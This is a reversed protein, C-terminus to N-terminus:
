YGLRANQGRPPLGRPLCTSKAHSCALGHSCRYERTLTLKLRDESIPKGLPPLNKALWTSPYTSTLATYEKSKISYMNPVAESVPVCQTWWDTYRDVARATYVAWRKERIRILAKGRITEDQFKLGQSDHIGFLGDITSITERLDALAALLKLHLICRDREVTSKTAPGPDSFNLPPIDIVFQENEVQQEQYTPPADGNPPSVDKIDKQKESQKESEKSLTLKSFAKEVTM